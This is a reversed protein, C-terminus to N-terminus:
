VVMARLEEETYSRCNELTKDLRWNILRPHVLRLARASISQGDVEVVKGFYKPDLTPVGKEDLITIERRKELPINPVRAIPHLVETGDKKVFPVSITLSGVLNEFGKGEDGLDFGTVVGDITDGMTGSATKKIKVWGDRSRSERDLYAGYINKCVVGEGGQEWISELYEKKNERVAKIKFFPLGLEKLKPMIRALFGRRNRYTTCRLEEGDYYLCDFAWFALPSCLEKQIAISEEPNLSLLATCAQLVTETVVGRKGLVTSINADRSLIETDLVFAPFLGKLSDDGMYVQKTYCVPLYDTVSVNRSYFEFGYDPHYSVIMRCGNAKEEFVIDGSTFLREYEEPRLHTSLFCLAPSEMSLRYNLGFTRETKELFHKQLARVYDAKGEKKKGGIPALNLVKCEQKLEALSRQMM